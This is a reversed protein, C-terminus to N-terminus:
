DKVQFDVEVVASVSKDIFKEERYQDLGDRPSIDFWGQSAHVIGAVDSGFDRAFKDAVVQANKTAEAIMDTKIDDLKTFIYKVESNSVVVGQDILEAMEHVAREIDDVASSRVVLVEKVYYVDRHPKVYTEDMEDDYDEELSRSVVLSEIKINEPKIKQALLFDRIKKESDINETRARSLSKDETDFSISWVVFDARVNREAVGRVSVSRNDSQVGCLGSNIFYGAAGVGVSLIATYFFTLIYSKM